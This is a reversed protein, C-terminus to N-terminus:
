LWCSRTDPRGPCIHLTDHTLLCSGSTQLLPPSPSSLNLSPLILPLGSRFLSFFALSTFTDAPDLPSSRDMPFPSPFPHFTPRACSTHLLPYPLSVFSSMPLAPTPSSPLLPSLVCCPLITVTTMTPITLNWRPSPTLTLSVLSQHLLSQLLSLLTPPLNCQFFCFPKCSSHSITHPPRSKQRETQLREQRLSCPSPCTHPPTPIPTLYM